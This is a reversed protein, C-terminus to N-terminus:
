RYTLRDTVNYNANDEVVVGEVTLEISGPQPAICRNGRIVNNGGDRGHFRILSESVNDVVRVNRITHLTNGRHVQGQVCIRERVINGRIELGDVPVRWVYLRRNGANYLLRSDRVDCNHHAEHMIGEGDGYQGGFDRGPQTNSHVEYNNYAVTWRWGRMEIARNNNTFHSFTDGNYIPLYANPSYRIVNSGCYTGDGSFGIALCGYCYVYNERIDIGKAFCYPHTEPTGEVKGYNVYIGPRNDYRFVVDDRAVIKKGHQIKYGPMAFDYRDPGPNGPTIGALASEPIRNNAVLVNAAARIEIAANHRHTWRQWANQWERPINPDLIAAHTLRCGYVIHNGGYTKFGDIFQQREHIDSGFKIHGHRIDINVVGCHTTRNTDRLEIGKFASDRPTGEAECRAQYKPFNFRTSPAFRQSRATGRGAGRIIVHSELRLTDRFTYAGDPFYVVGGGKKVLDAQAAAFRADWSDGEYDAVSVVQDWAAADTWTLDYRAVPNDRPLAPPAGDTKRAAPYAPLAGLSLGAVLRFIVETRKNM